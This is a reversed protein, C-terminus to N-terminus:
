KDKFVKGLLSENQGNFYSRGTDFFNIGKELAFNILTPDMTRSAGFGVETVEIGAKGLTRFVPTVSTDAATQAALAQAGSPQAQQGNQPRGCSVGLGLGLITTGCHALFEKRKIKPSEPM